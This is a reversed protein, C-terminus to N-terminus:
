GDRRHVSPCDNTQCSAFAAHGPNPLAMILARFSRALRALIERGSQINVISRIFPDRDEIEGFVVMHEFIDHPEQYTVLCLGCLLPSRSYLRSISLVHQHPLLASAPSQRNHDIMTRTKFESFGFLYESTSQAPKRPRGSVRRRWLRKTVTVAPGM